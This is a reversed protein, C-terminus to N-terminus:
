LKLKLFYSNLLAHNEMPNYLFLTMGFKNRCRMLLNDAHHDSIRHSGSVLEPHSQFIFYFLRM